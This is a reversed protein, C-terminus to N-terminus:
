KAVVVMAPRILRENLLYGKQFVTLVTNAIVGEGGPQTTMAQHFDPNFLEGVPNIEVVGFKVVADTLMKLCMEMGERIKVNDQPETEDTNLGMELSDKVPLLERVFKELGFKHANELEREARRQMNAMDAQTRILQNWHDEAKAQAEQLSQLLEEHSPLPEAEAEKLEGPSTVDAEVSEASVVQQAPDEAPPDEVPPVDVKDAEDAKDLVQLSEDTEPQQKKSM